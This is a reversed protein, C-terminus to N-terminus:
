PRGDVPLGTNPIVQVARDDWLELMGYDKRDTVALAQGLHERCWENIYPIARPTSARATLIRVDRGAALWRRVRRVMPLIPPGIHEFGRWEDFRALTGDLDVAIWGDEEAAM